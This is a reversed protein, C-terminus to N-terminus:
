WENRNPLQSSGEVTLIRTELFYHLKVWSNLASLLFQSRLLIRCDPEDGFIVIIASTDIVM